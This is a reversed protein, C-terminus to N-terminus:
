GEVIIKIDGDDAKIIIIDDPYIKKLERLTEVTYSKSGRDLEISSVEFRSDKCFALRCMELRDEGSALKGPIKHPPICSPVILMRDLGLKEVAERALRTHGKHPPNFTGGFIGIECNEDM